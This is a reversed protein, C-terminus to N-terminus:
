EVGRRLLPMRLHRAGRWSVLAFVAFVACAVFGAWVQPVARQLLSFGALVCAFTMAVKLGDKPLVTYGMLRKVLYLNQGILVCETAVTVGAAAIYSFRPILLLNAAINFATCVSGTWLFAKEKRASLLLVNLAYNLFAPVAAWVLIKVVLISERYSSGLFLIVVPGAFALTALVILLSTALLFKMGRSCTEQADQKASDASFVPLLAGMLGYPVILLMAFVRYPLSYIGVAFSGALRALLVVDVRDYLNAILPYVNFTLISAALDQLRPGDSGSFSMRGVVCALAVAAGALAGLIEASIVGQLGMGARVFASMSALVVAGQALEIWPLPLFYGLGKLIGQASEGLARPILTLALLIVNEVISSSFRLLALIMLALGLGPVVYALRLQAVRTGLPWASEPHQAVERTLFDMYGTGSVIAIMEVVTLLLAYVGFSEVGLMRAALMLIAIRFSRRIVQSVALRGAQPALRDLRPTGAFAPSLVSEASGNM